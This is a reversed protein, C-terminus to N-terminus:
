TSVKWSKGLRTEVTKKDFKTVLYLVLDDESVIKLVAYNGRQRLRTVVMGGNLGEESVGSSLYYVPMLSSTGHRNDGKRTEVAFKRDNTCVLLDWANSTAGSLDVTLGASSLTGALSAEFESDPSAIMDDENCVDRVFEAIRLAVQGDEGTTQLKPVSTKARSRDFALKEAMQDVLLKCFGAVSVIALLAESADFDLKYDHTSPNRYDQRYRTLQTLVRQRLVKNAELYKEIDNPTKGTPDKTALVRFAEKLSGEYAQNTRYISDTYCDPDAVPDRQYHRIAAELHRIIARLGVSHEGEALNNASEQLIEVIDM